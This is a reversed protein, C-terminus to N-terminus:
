LFRGECDQQLIAKFPLRKISPRGSMLRLSWHRASSEQRGFLAGAQETNRRIGGLHRLVVHEAGIVQRENAGLSPSAVAETESNLKAQQVVGALTQPKAFTRRLCHDGERVIAASL